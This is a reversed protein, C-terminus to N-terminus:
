WEQGIRFVHPSKYSLGVLDQVPDQGAEALLARPAVRGCSAATSFAGQPAMSGLLKKESALIPQCGSGLQSRAAGAAAVPLAKYGWGQTEQQGEKRSHAMKAEGVLRGQSAM